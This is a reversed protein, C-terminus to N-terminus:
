EVFKLTFKYEKHEGKYLAIFVSEATDGKACVDKECIIQRTSTAADPLEESAVWGNYFNGVTTIITMTKINPSYLALTDKTRSFEVEDGEKIIIKKNTEDNYIVATPEEIIGDFTAIWEIGPLTSEMDIGAYPDETLEEGVKEQDATDDVLKLVFHYEKEEGNCEANLTCKLETNNSTVGKSCDIRRTSSESDPLETSGLWNENFGGPGCWPNIMEVNPTYIALIDSSKSFEVEDGESVIVKKNTDDNYVVIIPEKVDLEDFTAMWELGPLTSEMDIGEYVVAGPTPEPTPEATPEPEAAEEKVQEAEKDAEAASTEESAPAADTKSSSCATLLTAMLMVLVALVNLINRKRKFAKKKM